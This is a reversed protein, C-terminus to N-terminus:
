SVTSPISIGIKILFAYFQLYKKKIDSYIPIDKFQVYSQMYYNQIPNLPYKKNIVDSHSMNTSLVDSLQVVNAYSVMCYM